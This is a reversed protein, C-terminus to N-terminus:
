HYGFTFGINMFYPAQVSEYQSYYIQRCLTAKLDNRLTDNGDSDLFNFENIIDAIGGYPNYITINSIKDEDISTFKIGCVVIYKDFPQHKIKAYYKDALQTIEISEGNLLEKKTFAM